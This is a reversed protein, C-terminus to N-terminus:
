KRGYLQWWCVKIRTFFILNIQILDENLLLFAYVRTHLVLSVHHRPRLTNVTCAHHTMKGPPRFVIMQSVLWVCLFVLWTDFTSLLFVHKICQTFDFRPRLQTINQSLTWLKAQYCPEHSWCSAWGPGVPGQHAGHQGWSSFKAIQTSNRFCVAANLFWVRRQNPLTIRLGYTETWSNNNFRYQEQRNLYEHLWSSKPPASMIFSLFIIWPYTVEQMLM